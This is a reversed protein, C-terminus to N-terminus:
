VFFIKLLFNWFNAKELGTPLQRKFARLSFARARIEGLFDSLLLQVRKKRWHALNTGASFVAAALIACTHIIHRRICM